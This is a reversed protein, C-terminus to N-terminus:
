RGLKLLNDLVAWSLVFDMLGLLLSLIVVVVMVVLTTRLTQERTPWVVKRLEFQSESIFDRASRGLGTFAGIAIAGIMGVLLVGLRAWGSWDSFYYYAIIGAVFLVGALVLKAMDLANTAGAKEVKANMRYPLSV